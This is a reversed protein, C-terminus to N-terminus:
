EISVVGTLSLVVALLNYTFHLGAATLYLNRTSKPFPGNGNAWEIVARSLGLGVIFSFGTHLAPTVTVRFLVFDNGGEPFLLFIYFLSEILGFCLGSLGTLLATHLRGRLARPWRILLIYIGAPKLAEEVFPAGLLGAETNQVLAGGVGLVGGVIALGVALLDYFWARTSAASAESVPASM